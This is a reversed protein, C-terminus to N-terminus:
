WKWGKEQREMYIEKDEETQNARVKAMRVKAKENEMAKEEQSQQSRIQIMRKKNEEKEDYKKTVSKPEM